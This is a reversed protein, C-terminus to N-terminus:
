HSESFCCYFRLMNIYFWVINNWDLLLMCLTTPYRIGVVNLNLEKAKTLLQGAKKPHCGFKIGLDCQVKFDAPPLIRLVLRVFSFCIQFCEDIINILHGVVFCWVHNSRRFM